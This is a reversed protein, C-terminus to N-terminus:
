PPRPYHHDQPVTPYTDIGVGEFVDKDELVSNFCWPQRWEVRRIANPATVVTRWPPRWKRRGGNSAFPTPTRTTADDIESDDYLSKNSASWMLHLTTCPSKVGEFNKHTYVVFNLANSHKLHKLSPAYGNNESIPRHLEVRQM